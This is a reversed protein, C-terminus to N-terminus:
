RVERSIITHVHKYGLKKMQKEWGKRGVIYIESCDYQKAMDNALSDIDDYWLDMHDGGALNIHLARKGSEFTTQEFSVVAILKRDNFVTVILLEKRRVMERVTVIDLEGNSEDIAKIIFPEIEDWCGELLETTPIALEIM